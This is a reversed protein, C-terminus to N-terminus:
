EQMETRTLSLVMQMFIFGTKNLNYHISQKWHKKKCRERIHIKIDTKKVRQLSYM